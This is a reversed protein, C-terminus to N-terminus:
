YANNGYEIPFPAGSLIFILVEVDNNLNISLWGVASLHTIEAEDAEALLLIPRDHPRGLGSSSHIYKIWALALRGM